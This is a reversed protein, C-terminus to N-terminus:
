GGETKKRVGLGVGGVLGAVALLFSVKVAEAKEREKWGLCHRHSGGLCPKSM